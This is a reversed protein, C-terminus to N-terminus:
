RLLDGAVCFHDCNKNGEDDVMCNFATEFCTGDPCDEDTTCEMSCFGESGFHSVCPGQPCEPHEVICNSARKEEVEEESDGPQPICVEAIATPVNCAPYTQIPQGEGRTERGGRAVDHADPSLDAEGGCAAFVLACAFIIGLLKM